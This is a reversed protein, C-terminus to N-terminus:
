VTVDLLMTPFSTKESALSLIENKQFNTEMTFGAPRHGQFYMEFCM